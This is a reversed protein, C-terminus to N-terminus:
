SQAPQAVLPNPYFVGQHEHGKEKSGFTMFCRTCSTTPNDHGNVRVTFM